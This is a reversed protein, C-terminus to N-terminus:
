ERSIHAEVGCDHRLPVHPEIMDIASPCVNLDSIVLMDRPRLDADQGRASSTVDSISLGSRLASPM